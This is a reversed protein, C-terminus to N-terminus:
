DLYDVYQEVHTALYMAHEEVLREARQADRAELAEIIRMHDIVSETARNREAITKRRIARMHIFLTDTIETGDRSRTVTYRLAEWSGAPVSM